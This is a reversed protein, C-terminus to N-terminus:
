IRRRPASMFIPLERVANYIEPHSWRMMYLLNGVGSRYKTGQDFKMVVTGQEAPTFVSRTKNLDFEDEYSQFLVPQTFKLFDEGRDINCGVYENLEGLYDCEFRSKMQEKTAEVARPDGAVL